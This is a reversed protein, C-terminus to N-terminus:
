PTKLLSSCGKISKWILKIDRYIKRKEDRAERRETKGSQQKVRLAKRETAKKRKARLIRREIENDPLDWLELWNEEGDPIAIGEPIQPKPPPKYPRLAAEKKQQGKTPKKPKQQSHSEENQAVASEDKGHDVPTHGISTTGAAAKAAAREQRKRLAETTVVSGDDQLVVPGVNFTAGSPDHIAALRWVQRIAADQIKRREANIDRM